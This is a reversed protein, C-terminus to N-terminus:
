LPTSYGSFTANIVLGKPYAVAKIDEEGKTATADKNKM